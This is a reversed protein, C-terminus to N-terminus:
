NSEFDVYEYRWHKDTGLKMQWKSYKKGKNEYKWCDIITGIFISNVMVPNLGSIEISLLSWETLKAVDVERFSLPCRMEVIVM